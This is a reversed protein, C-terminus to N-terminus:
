PHNPDDDPLDSSDPANAANYTYLDASIQQSASITDIPLITNATDLPFPQAM